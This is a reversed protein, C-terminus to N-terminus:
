RDGQQLLLGGCNRPGVLGSRRCGSQPSYSRAQNPLGSTKGKSVLDQLQVREEPTLRVIYKKAM